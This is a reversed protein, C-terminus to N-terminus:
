FIFRKDISSVISMAYPSCVGAMEVKYEDRKSAESIPIRDDNKNDSTLKNHQMHKGCSSRSSAFLIESLQRDNTSSGTLDREKGHEFASQPSLM